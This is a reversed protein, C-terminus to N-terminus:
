SNGQQLCIILLFSNLFSKIVSFIGNNSLSFLLIDNIHFIPCNVYIGQMYQPFVIFSDVIFSMKSSLNIMACFFFSSGISHQAVLSSMYAFSPARIKDHLCKALIFHRVFAFKSGLLIFINQKFHLASDVIRIKKLM